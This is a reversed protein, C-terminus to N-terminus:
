AEQATKAWAPKEKKKHPNIEPLKVPTPQEPKSNSNPNPDPNNKLREREQQGEQKIKELRQAAREKEREEEQKQEQLERKFGDLWKKHNNLVPLVRKRTKREDFQKVPVLGLQEHPSM